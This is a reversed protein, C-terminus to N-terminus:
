FARQDPLIEQTCLKVGGRFALPALLARSIPTQGRGGWVRGVGAGCGGWTRGVGAGCVRLVGKGPLDTRRLLLSVHPEALPLGDQPVWKPPPAQEPPAM